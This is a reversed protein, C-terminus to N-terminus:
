GTGSLFVYILRFASYFEFWMHSWILAPSSLMGSLMRYNFIPFLLKLSFFVIIGIPLSSQYSSHELFPLFVLCRDIITTCCFIKTHEVCLLCQCIFFSTNGVISSCLCFNRLPRLLVSSSTQTLLSGFCFKLSNKVEVPISLWSTYFVSVSTLFYIYMFIQYIHLHETM